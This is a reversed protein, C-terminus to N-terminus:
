CYLCLPIITGALLVDERGTVVQLYKEKIQDSSLHVLEEKLKYIDVQKLISGEDENFVKLGRIICALTTPTGAIAIARVNKSIDINVFTSSLFNDFNSIESPLPPNHKFFRETGSVVGTLFSNIYKIQNTKCSILETSGGGIDIVLCDNYGNYYDSIAGLFSYEAEKLSSIINIEIGLENKIAKRISSTNSSIRLANTGIALVVECNYLKILKNYESLIHILEKIKENSINNNQEIGKGIRPVRYENRLALIQNNKIEAIGRQRYQQSL